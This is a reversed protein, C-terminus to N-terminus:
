VGMDNNIYSTITVLLIMDLLVDEVVDDEDEAAEDERIVCNRDWNYEAGEMDQHGCTMISIM